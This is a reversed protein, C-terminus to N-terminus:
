MLGNDMSGLSNNDLPMNAIENFWATWQQADLDPLLSSWYVADVSPAPDTMVGSSPQHYSTEGQPDTMQLNDLHGANRNSHVPVVSEVILHASQIQDTLGNKELDELAPYLSKIIFKYFREVYAPAITESDGKAQRCADHIRTLWSVVLQQEDFSLHPFLQALFEALKFLGVAFSDQIFKMHGFHALEVACQVYADVNSLYEAVLLKDPIGRGVLVASSFRCRARLAAFRIYNQGPEDPQSSLTGVDAVIKGIIQELELKLAGSLIRAAQPSSPTEIEDCSGFIRNMAINHSLLVDFFVGFPKTDDAWRDTAVAATSTRAAHMGNGDEGYTHDFCILNRWTRERNLIMRAEVEDSPLATVREENLVLAQALRMAYGIKFFATTDDSDKWFVLVCLAQLFGIDCVGRIFAQAIIDNTHSLLRPFLTPEFYKSSATMLASFLPTSSGRVFTLTHLQPDFSKIFPNLQAMFNQLLRDAQDLGLMNLEVPDRNFLVNGAEGLRRAPASNGEKARLLSPLTQANEYVRDAQTLPSTQQPSGMSDRRSANLRSGGEHAPRISAFAAHAADYNVPSPNSSGNDLRWSSASAPSMQKRTQHRKQPQYECDLDLRVCRKCKSSPPADESVPLCKVKIARCRLCAIKKSAGSGGASM